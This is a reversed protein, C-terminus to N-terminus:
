GDPQARQVLLLYAGALFCLAGVFTGLNVMAVNRPDGSEPVIKSAVASIGFAVSGVLNLAAIWWPIGRVRWATRGHAVTSWALGSAVLFCASGYADPRWILHNAEEATWTTQLAFYTSLNFFVTGALQVLSAWWDTRAPEWSLVRLRGSRSGPGAAPEPNVTDLYQLLAASTFFISGVFFTWGVAAAGVVDVFGPVSGAAFCVSGVIFLVGIWWGIAGPAWWV